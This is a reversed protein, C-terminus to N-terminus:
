SMANSIRYLVSLIYCQVVVVHFMYVLNIVIIRFKQSRLCTAKMRAYFPVAIGKNLYCIVFYFLDSLIQGFAM